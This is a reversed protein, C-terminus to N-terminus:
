KNKFYKIAIKENERVLSNRMGDLRKNIDDFLETDENSLSANLKTDPKTRKSSM